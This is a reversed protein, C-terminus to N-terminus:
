SISEENRRLFIDQGVREIHDLLEKETIKEFHVIDFFYPMASDENLVFSIALVVDHTIRAGKVAIDVDSGKKYNGKARSGFIIAKEVAPFKKLTAIIEALDRPRLGFRM